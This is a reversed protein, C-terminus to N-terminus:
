RARTKMPLREITVSTLEAPSLRKSADLGEIGVIHKDGDIDVAVGEEIDLNDSPEAERIQIYLAAAEPDYEIRV